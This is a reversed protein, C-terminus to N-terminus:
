ARSDKLAPDADLDKAVDISNGFAADDDWPANVYGNRLYFGISSPNGHLVVKRRGQRRAFDEALKLLVTGYGRRQLDSDIAILRFAAREADFLDVRVTGIVTDATVLVLPFHNARREDPHDPDYVVGPLHPEFLATRRIRHYADWEAANAPARLAHGDAETHRAM